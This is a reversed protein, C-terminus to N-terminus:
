NILMFHYKTFYKSFFQKKNKAFFIANTYPMMYTNILVTNIFELIHRQKINNILVTNIFELIRRQKINHIM